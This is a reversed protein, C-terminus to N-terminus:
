KPTEIQMREKKTLKAKALEYSQDILSYIFDDTFSNNPTIHIWHKKNFHPAAQINKYQETLEIVQEPPCKISIAFAEELDTLAYMKSIVKMVLTNEDFPFSENTGPKQLCYARFSESNMYQIKQVEAVFKILKGAESFLNSGNKTIPHLSYNVTYIIYFTM